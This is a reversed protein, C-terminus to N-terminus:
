PTRNAALPPRGDKGERIARTTRLEDLTMPLFNPPVELTFTEAAIDTNVQRQDVRFTLSLPTVDPSISSVRVLFPFAGDYERYEIRLGDRDGAVLEWRGNRQRVYARADGGLEISAQTGYNTGSFAGSPTTVCGTLVNLLDRAGWRLGTLRHVIDRSAARMVRDERPLLFM